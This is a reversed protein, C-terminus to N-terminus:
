SADDEPEPQRDIEALREKIGQIHEEYAAVLSENERRREELLRQLEGLDSTGYNKEAQDRLRQLEEDLNRINTETQIKRTDLERYDKKLVELKEQVAQDRPSNAGAAPEEGKSTKM